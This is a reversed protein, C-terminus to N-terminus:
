KSRGDLKEQLLRNVEQPNAKENSKKMVEGVFFDFLKIKGNKYQSLDNPNELIVQDIMQKILVVDTIQELDKKAIIKDPDGNGALMEEFVIKALKGSITQDAIRQLLMALQKTSIPSQLIAINDKNLAASLEGMIWNMAFKPEVHCFSIVEEFYNALGQDATLLHADYDNLGYDKMFRQSKQEPLEPLSNKISEILEDSINLPLLDPEPFYRYDKLEEKLRMPRTENKGPDFCRTEKILEGTNMLLNSQREIEFNIAREIYRFSNLNKIESHTGLLNSGKKRVSINVDCRFSGDQMNGDCIGLYKTLQHITKLFTIAEEASHMEPESVIELLTAGARNFDIATMGQYEDHLSKGADEELLASTIHIRKTTDDVLFIDIYGSQVLQNHRQTIQYGKPLDPYFYNKREFTSNQNIHANVALGFKIAMKVAEENLTPMVGPLALDIDCAHINPEDGVSMSAGSFLKSKTLLKTHIELGIVAELQM